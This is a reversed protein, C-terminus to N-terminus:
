LVSIQMGYLLCQPCRSRSSRRPVRCAARCTRGSHERLSLLTHRSLEGECHRSLVATQVQPLDINAFGMRSFIDQLRNIIPILQEMGPKVGSTAEGKPKPPM